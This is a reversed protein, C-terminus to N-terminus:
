AKEVELFSLPQEQREHTKSIKKMGKNQLSWTLYKNKYNEEEFISPEECLYFTVEYHRFKNDIIEMPSQEIIPELVLNTGSMQKGIQQGWTRIESEASLYVRYCSMIYQGNYKFHATIKCPLDKEWNKIYGQWGITTAVIFTLITIFNDWSSWSSFSANDLYYFTWVFALLTWIGLLYLSHRNYSIVKSYRILDCLMRIKKLECLKIFLRM